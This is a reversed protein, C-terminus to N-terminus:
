LDDVVRMYNKVPNNHWDSIPPGETNHRVILLFAKTNRQIQSLYDYMQLSYAGATKDM